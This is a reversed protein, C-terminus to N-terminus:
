RSSGAEFRRILATLDGQVKEFHAFTVDGFPLQLRERILAFIQLYNALIRRSWPFELKEAMAAVVEPAGEIELFHGFPMHDLCIEASAMEFIARRKEYIQARRFGLAELLQAATDFDSVEIEIEEHTKFQRGGAPHPKKFTLVPM